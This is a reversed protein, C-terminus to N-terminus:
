KPINGFTSKLAELCNGCFKLICVGSVVELFLSSYEGAIVVRLPSMRPPVEFVCVESIADGTDEDKVVEVDCEM